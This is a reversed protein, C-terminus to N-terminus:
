ALEESLELWEEEVDVLRREFDAKKMALKRIREPQNQSSAEALLRDIDSIATEAKKMIAELQQVRKRTPATQERRAAKEQRTVIGSNQEVTQSPNSRTKSGPSGKGKLVLRRYDEMDGDYPGVSGDHVLWLREASAEVLHRDHSILIVAGEYDNLAHVLSERSDIDLHNTPEDLILLHPAHFTAIGLLLRAKEGGSLSKAVTDMKEIGLGMRATRARVKAEPADPMLRRVHEVPTEGPNLDDMNHQAFMAIRLTSARTIDGDMVTLRDALLKAFTSKGNGNAGLLAIRDDADIRLTLNRLIPKGPEYGVSANRLNIIPSAVEKEPSPFSLPAVDQEVVAAIQGMRELAKIRSQAQTAKSAKAKFRNIFAEMHARKADQKAKMKKQLSLKEARTKEFFDYDGKYSTLKKNELHIITNCCTNLLDRDHSIIIVTYPYRAVYNELWLTGELDLYNTPEDLLLLDPQAFLTAALAVRMRWGGSFESCPRLQTESDFGLGHLIAGARAEASHADIDALQMHIDAIRDPDTATEAEALLSTRMTDAALVTDILSVDNGPAEQAVQGITINRRLDLSGSEPALEGTILKFLTTKGTGNRGVFGVRAGEPVRTSADDLLLRGQMRFTLNNITLM